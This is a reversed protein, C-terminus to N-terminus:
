DRPQTGDLPEWDPATRRRRRRAVLVAAIAVIAAGAGLAAVEAWLPVAGGSSVAPVLTWNVATPRASVVSVVTDISQYGPASARVEHPGPAVSVNFAGQTLAVSVNDIWLSASAPAVSGVIFGDAGRFVLAVSFPSGRVTGNGSPTESVYAAPPVVAYHFSGNPLPVGLVPQASSLNLWVPGSEVAVGWVAGYPLGSADFDIAYTFATWTITVTANGATLDVSGFSPTPRFGAIPAVTYVYTAPPESFGISGGAAFRTAGAITVSWNTGAPLGRPVFTLAFEEVTWNVTITENADTVTLPGGSPRAVFGSIPDVLYAHAGSPLLCAITPLQSGLSTGDVAVGWATYYPLGVEVFAVTYVDQWALAVPYYGGATVNLTVSGELLSQNRIVLTYAGPPLTLNVEGTTFGVPTTGNIILEGQMVSTTVNVEGVDSRNWLVGLTGGTGALLNATLNGTGRPAQVDTTVNSVEQRSDSAFNYATTPEQLNHGNWYELELQVNSKNVHTEAGALPAGVSLEADLYRGDPRYSFGDVLFGADTAGSAFPFTLTEFTLWGFGDDFAFRVAPAGQDVYSTMEVELQSPLPIFYGNGPLSSNALCTYYTGLSSTTLACRGSVSGARLQAGASSANWVQDLFQANGGRTSYELVDTVGYIYSANGVTFDLSGSLAFYVSDPSALSANWAAMPTLDVIGLLIPTFFSTATGGADVGYDAIGMPAPERTFIKSVNVGGGARPLNAPTAVRYLTAGALVPALGTPAPSPTRAGGATAMEPALADSTRPHSGLPGPALLLLAISAAAVPALAGARGLPRWRHPRM